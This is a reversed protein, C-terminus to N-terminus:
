YCAGVATRLYPTESLQNLMFDATDARSISVSWLYNGVRPGHQYVGRKRGNTLQGPRVIVWDLGSERVVREQRGKDYWYFPLIFPITFLTYYVGLRGTSDGVGLATEVVLRKVGAANMADVLNRTGQSLIKSPGLWRKHGLACVVADQGRVAAALSAPDMVDGKAVTLHDHTLKVKAPSRALATVHHGRELAQKVLERGTGGNAGVILIRM